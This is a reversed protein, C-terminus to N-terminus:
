IFLLHSAQLSCLIWSTLIFVLNHPQPYGADPLYAGPPTPYSPGSSHHPPFPPPSYHSHQAPYGESPHSPTKDPKSLNWEPPPFQLQSWSNTSSDSSSYSNLPPRSHTPIPPASSYPSASPGPETRASSDTLTYRHFEDVLFSSAEAAPRPSQTFREQAQGFGGVFAGQPAAPGEAPVQSQESTKLNSLPTEHQPSVVPRTSLPVPPQASQASAGSSARHLPIPPPPSTPQSPSELSELAYPPPPVKKEKEEEKEKESSLWYQYGAGSGSGPPEAPTEAYKPRSSWYDDLEKKPFTDHILREGKLGEAAMGCIRM